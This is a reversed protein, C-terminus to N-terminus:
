IDNKIKILEKYNKPNQEMIEIITKFKYQRDGSNDVVDNDDIKYIRERHKEELSEGNASFLSINEQLLYRESKEDEAIITKQINLDGNGLSFAVYENRSIFSFAMKASLFETKMKTKNILGIATDLDIDENLNILAGGEEYNYKYGCIMNKDSVSGSLVRGNITDEAVCVDGVQIFKTELGDESIRKGVSVNAGSENVYDMKLENILNNLEVM